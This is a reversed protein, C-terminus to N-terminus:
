FLSVTRGARRGISSIGDVTVSLQSPLAGAVTINNNSDTQVGPQATLTSFASTSGQSRTFIAVPLDTLELAGKSEAINSVDTQITAIAEVTVTSAQTAVKLEVDIRKSERAALDFPQFEIKQFGAADVLIRYTGVDINVFQYAGNTGTETTRVANTGTNVLQVTAKPVLGGSPDQVVGLVTGFTSQGRAGVAITLLCLVIKSCVRWHQSM